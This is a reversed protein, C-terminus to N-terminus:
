PGLRRQLCGDCTKLRRSGCYTCGCPEVLIEGPTGKIPVHVVAYMKKIVTKPPTDIRYPTDIVFSAFATRNPEVKRLIEPTVTFKM